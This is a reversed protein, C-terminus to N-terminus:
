CFNGYVTYVSVTQLSGLLSLIVVDTNRHIFYSLHHIMGDRKQIHRPYQRKVLMRSNRCKMLVLFVGAARVM